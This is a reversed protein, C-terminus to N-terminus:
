RKSSRSRAKARSPLAHQWALSLAAGLEDSSLAALTVTTWGRNGWANSVPEFAEPATLCKLEQEDPTLKLNATLGDAALTVYIRAVKFATREFHPTSTTGDLAMTLRKLDGATAM